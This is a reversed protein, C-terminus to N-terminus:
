PVALIQGNLFLEHLTIIFLRDVILLYSVVRAIDCAIVRGEEEVEELGSIRWDFNVQAQRYKVPDTM